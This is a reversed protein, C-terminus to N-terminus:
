WFDQGSSSLFRVRAWTTGLDFRVDVWANGLDFRVRVLIEWFWVSWRDVNVKAWYKLAKRVDTSHHPPRTLLWFQKAFSVVDAKTTCFDAFQSTPPQSTPQVLHYTKDNKALDRLFDEEQEFLFLLTCQADRYEAATRFIVKGRSSISEFRESKVGKYRVSSKKLAAAM